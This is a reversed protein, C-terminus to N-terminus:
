TLFAKSLRCGTALHRDSQYSSHPPRQHERPCDGTGECPNSGSHVEEVWSLYGLVCTRLSRIECKLFGKFKRICNKEGAAGGGGGWYIGGMEEKASM